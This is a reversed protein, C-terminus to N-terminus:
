DRPRRRLRTAVVLSGVGFLMAAHPEPVATTPKRALTYTGVVQETTAREYFWIGDFLLTFTAGTVAETFTNVGTVEGSAIDVLPRDPSAPDDTEIFTSGFASIMLTGSGDLILSLSSSDVALASDDIFLMGTPAEDRTGSQDPTSYEFVIDYGIQAAQAPSVAVFVALLPLAAVALFRLAAPRNEM